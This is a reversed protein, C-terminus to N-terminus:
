VGYRTLVDEIDNDADDNINEFIKIQKLLNKNIALEGESLKIDDIAQNDVRESTTEKDVRIM